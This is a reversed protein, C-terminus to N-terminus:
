DVLVETQSTEPVDVKVVIHESDGEIAESKKKEIQSVVMETAPLLHEIPKVILKQDLYTLGEKQLALINIGLQAAMTKVPFLCHICRQLYPCLDIVFCSCMRVFNDRENSSFAQQEQRYFACITFAIQQLSSEIAKTVPNAIALPACLRLENFANLIGNCYNALPRFDLLSEPPSFNESNEDESNMKQSSRSLGGTMKNILTYNEMEINFQKTATVILNTFRQSITKVFIPAMLGRFDAGVRSFSLGFYMCQGLITEM